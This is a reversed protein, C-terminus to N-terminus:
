PFIIFQFHKFLFDSLMEGFAIGINNNNDFHRSEIQQGSRIKLEREELIPKITGFLENEIERLSKLYYDVDSQNELGIRHLAELQGWGTYVDRAPWFINVPRKINLANYTYCGYAMYGLGGSGSVYCISDLCKSLLLLIPIAKPSINDLKDKLGELENNKGLQLCLNNKCSICVGELQVHGHTNKYLKSSSKSGCECHIWLPSKNYSNSSIGPFYINHKSLSVESKRLADTYVDYNQILHRYGNEFISSMDTLRTFLVNYNWIRNVIQSILFSNFDSYTKARSYSKEVEIWFKEFNDLIDHKNFQLSPPTSLNKIWSYIQGKWHDLIERRPLPMNCVMIWRNSKNIPFKIELIGNTHRISPLQARRIWIEDMFDHDIIIFLNAINRRSKQQIELENKLTQILVIKKFVGSYAFLNPQHTTFFIQTDSLNLLKISDKVKATITDADNHFKLVSKQLKARSFLVDPDEVTRNTQSLVQIADSFSKPVSSIFDTITNDNISEYKSFISMEGIM